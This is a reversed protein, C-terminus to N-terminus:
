MDHTLLVLKDVEIWDTFEVNTSSDTLGKTIWM